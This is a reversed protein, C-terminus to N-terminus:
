KVTLTVINTYVYGADNSVKCRYQYGNRYSKGEVSLSATTAGTGTCKKWTGSSSTRYYWQYSTTNSAKVTFKVTDGVYVTKSIPQTTITPKSASTVTLTAASSYKYGAANSVKCRYQYGNRYSKAEVSLTATTAGTGTCKQWSGSSSTRYYWQYSDAGSAKVTFKATAGAAVTKSAPQTTITPKSQAEKEWVAYLTVNGSPTYSGSFGSAATSSTAWGMCIYGSRTATPLTVASTSTTSSWQAYLTASANATYTGGPQYTTGSGDSKTNWNIFSYSATRAASLSSASVSGGNANLTVTYPTLSEASRSPKTSSLTLSVGHTKAQSAPAGSGGNAHYAITYTTPSDIVFNSDILTATGASNTAKVVYRYSGTDLTGFKFQESSNLGDYRIDYSTSNPNTSYSRIASGAANYIYASVNTIVVSSSIIGRLGFNKGKTLTGSPYGETTGASTGSITPLTVTYSGGNVSEWNDSTLLSLKGRKTGDSRTQRAAIQSYTLTTLSVKSSGYWNCEYIQAGTSTLSFIIMSHQHGNSGADFQLVDGPRAKSLLSKVNSETCSSVSGLNTMGSTSVGAYTWSRYTKGSVTSKGFVEYIVLKAFGYCTKGGDFSDTWTSNNPYSSLVTQLKKAVGDANAVPAQLESELVIPIIEEATEVEVIEIDEAAAAPILSLCMILGLLLALIRKM